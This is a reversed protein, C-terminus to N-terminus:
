VALPAGITYTGGPMQAGNFLYIPRKQADFLLKPRERRLAEISTGDELPISTNYCRSINSWTIGDASYAHGGAWGPSPIPSSGAPDFMRHYLVHWNGRQDQWM